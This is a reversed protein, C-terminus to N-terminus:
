GSFFFAAPKSGRPHDCEPLTNPNESTVALEAKPSVGVLTVGRSGVGPRGTVGDIRASNKLFLGPTAKPCTANPSDSGAKGLLQTRAM